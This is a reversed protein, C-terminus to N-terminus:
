RALVASLLAPRLLSANTQYLTEVLTGPLPYDPPGISWRLRERTIEQKFATEWELSMLTIKSLSKSM